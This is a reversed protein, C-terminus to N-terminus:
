LALALIRRDFCVKVVTGSMGSGLAIHVDKYKHHYDGKQIQGAFSLGKSTARAMSQEKAQQVEAATPGASASASQSKKEKQM